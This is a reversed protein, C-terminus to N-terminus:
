RSPYTTPLIEDIAKCALSAQDWRLDVEDVGRLSRFGIALYTPDPDEITPEEM